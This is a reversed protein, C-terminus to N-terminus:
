EDMGDAATMEIRYYRRIAQHASADVVTGGNHPGGPLEMWPQDDAMEDRYFVTYALGQPAPPFTIRYGGDEDRQVQATIDGAVAVPSEVRIIFNTRDTNLPLLLAEWAYGGGPKPPDQVEVDLEGM